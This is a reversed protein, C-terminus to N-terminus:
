KYLTIKIGKYYNLIHFKNKKMSLKTIFDNEKPNLNEFSDIVIIRHFNTVDRDVDEWSSCFIINENIPLEKKQNSFFSSDYYYCFLPKIDKTKVIVLDNNKKFQKIFYVANKYDMGKDTKYNIQFASFVFFLVTLTITIKQNKLFSLGVAILIFIFPISFILYRDLFIPTIKGLFFLIFVSGVGVLFVYTVVFHATKKNKKFILFIGLLIIILFPIIMIKNFLFTSAVEKLYQLSSKKLWFTKESDNFNLILLFQKKTFRILVLFLTVMLSYSFYLIQKKDSYIVILLLQFLIVIGSIYHTYILLFNILGLLLAIKLSSNDKFNLYLYSSILSLLLVLSYARAEHSYFFITNSSLYLLSVIIATTKNFHKNTLSFLMGGSFASFLVSLFRVTFESDNFIKIWLSLCYYYFPPNNDWESVHKIHGFDLSASQVSIIEDYWFSSFDLQITKLVINLFIVSFFYIWLSNDTSDKQNSFFFRNLM